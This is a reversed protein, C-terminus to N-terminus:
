EWGCGDGCTKLGDGGMGPKACGRWMSDGTVCNGDGNGDEDECSML